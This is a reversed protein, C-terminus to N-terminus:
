SRQLASANHYYVRDCAVRVLRKLNMLKKIIKKIRLLRNTGPLNEADYIMQFM